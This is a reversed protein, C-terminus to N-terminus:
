ELSPHFVFDFDFTASTSTGERDSRPLDRDRTGVRWVKDDGDWHAGALSRILPLASPEYPMALVGDASLRRTGGGRRIGVRTACADTDCSSVWRGGLRESLGAGVALTRGCAGCKVEIKNKM